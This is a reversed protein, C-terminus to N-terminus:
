ISPNLYKSIPLIMIYKIQVYGLLVGRSLSEKEKVNFVAVGQTTFLRM